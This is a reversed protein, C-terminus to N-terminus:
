WAVFVALYIIAYQIPHELSYEYQCDVNQLQEEVEAPGSHDQLQRDLQVTKNDGDLHNLRGFSVDLGEESEISVNWSAICTLDSKPFLQIGNLRVQHEGVMDMPDEIVQNDSM